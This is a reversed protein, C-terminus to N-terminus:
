GNPCSKCQVIWPMACPVVMICDETIVTVALHAIACDHSMINGCAMSVTDRCVLQSVNWNVNVKM